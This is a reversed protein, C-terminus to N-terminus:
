ASVEVSPAALNQSGNAVAPRLLRRVTDKSVNFSQALSRLSFGKSAMDQLKAMDVANRQPGPVRGLSRSKQLGLLVRERILEREFQSLSAFIGFVMRGNATSTDIGERLSIFSVGLSQFLDLAEVLHRMSRAFRSFDWVIVADVQRRKVAAMMAKMAPRKDEGLAGSLGSDVFEAAQWGRALCYRRLEIIQNQCDQSNTSVRAYVAVRKAEM